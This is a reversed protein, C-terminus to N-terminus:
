KRAPRCRRARDFRREPVQRGAAHPLSAMLTLETEAEVAVVAALAVVVDEVEDEEKESLSNM